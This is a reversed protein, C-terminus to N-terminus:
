IRRKMINQQNNHHKLLNNLEKQDNQVKLMEIINLFDEKTEGFSHYIDGFVETTFLLLEKELIPNGRINLTDCVKIPFGDFTMIKNNPCSLHGYIKEPCGKLNKLLNDGCLFNGIVEQPGHELTTLQNFHCSFDAGINKPCGKLSTLLNYGCNFDGHIVSPAYELSILKNSSCDFDGEVEYPAGKLSSLNLNKCYFSGNIIGFQVPFYELTDLQSSLYVHNPVDVTLDKRITFEFIFLNHLWKTIDDENDFFNNM